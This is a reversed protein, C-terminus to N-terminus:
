TTTPYDLQDVDDASSVLYALGDQTTAMFQPGSATSTAVLWKVDSQLEVDFSDVDNPFAGRADADLIRNGTFVNEPGVTPATYWFQHVM